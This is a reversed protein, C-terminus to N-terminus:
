NLTAAAEGFVSRLRPSYADTMDVFEAGGVLPSTGTLNLHDKIMMWEGAAFSRNVSGAANTLVVTKVGAHALTRVVAAVDRPSRGEYLHVRGQAFIVRRTGIQDLVFRGLHGSVSIEPVGPVQSYPIVIAEAGTGVAAALGSGLVVAVEASWDRLQALAAEGDAAHM